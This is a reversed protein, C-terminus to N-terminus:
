GFTLGFVALSCMILGGGGGGAGWWVGSNNPLVHFVSNDLGGGVGGGVGGCGWCVGTNDPLLDKGRRNSLLVGRESTVIADIEEFDLSM